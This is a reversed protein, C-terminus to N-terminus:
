LGYNDLYLVSKKKMVYLVQYKTVQLKILWYKEVKGM